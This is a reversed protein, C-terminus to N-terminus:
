IGGVNNVLNYSAFYHKLETIHDKIDHLARHHESKRYQLCPKIMKSKRLVRFVAIDLHQYHFFQELTPMHEALFSRDKWICNGCLPSSNKSTYQQLFEITQQEAELLSITSNICDAYLKSKAHQKKCWDNMSDLVLVNHSIAISNEALIELKNNTVVVAIELIHDKKSDLGTMELDLWIYNSKEHYPLM